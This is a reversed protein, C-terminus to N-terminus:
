LCRIVLVPNCPPTVVGQLAGERRKTLQAHKSVAGSIEALYSSGSSSRAHSCAHTRTRAQHQRGPRPEGACRHRTSGGSPSGRVSLPTVTDTIRLLKVASRSGPLALPPDDSMGAASALSATQDSRASCALLYALSRALTLLCDPRPRRVGAPWRLRRSRSSGAARRSVLFCARVSVLCACTRRVPECRLLSALM